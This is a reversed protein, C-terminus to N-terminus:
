ETFRILGRICCNGQTRDAKLMDDIFSKSANMTGLNHVMHKWSKTTSGQICIQGVTINLIVKEQDRIVASLDFCQTLQVVTVRDSRAQPAAGM